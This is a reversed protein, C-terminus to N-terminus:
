WILLYVYKSPNPFNAKLCLIQKRWAWASSSSSLPLLLSVVLPLIVVWFYRPMLLYTNIIFNEVGSVSPHSQFDLLHKWPIESSVGMCSRISHCIGTLVHFLKICILWYKKYYSNSYICTWLCSCFFFVPWSSNSCRCQRQDLM